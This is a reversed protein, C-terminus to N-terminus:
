TPRRTKRPGDGRFQRVACTLLAKGRQSHQRALGEWFPASRHNLRAAKWFVGATVAESIAKAILDDVSTQAEM